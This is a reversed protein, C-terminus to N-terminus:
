VCSKDSCETFFCEGFPSLIINFSHLISFPSHLISGSRADSKGQFTRKESGMLTRKEYSNRAVIESFFDLKKM